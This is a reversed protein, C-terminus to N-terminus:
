AVLIIEGDSKLRLLSCVVVLSSTVISNILLTLRTLILSIVLSVGLTAAVWIHSSAITTMNDHGVCNHDYQWSWHLVGEQFIAFRYFTALPIQMLLRHCAASLPLKTNFITCNAWFRQIIFMSFSMNHGSDRIWVHIDAATSESKLHGSSLLISCCHGSSYLSWYIQM